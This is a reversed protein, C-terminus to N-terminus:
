ESESHGGSQVAFRLLQEIHSIKNHQLQLHELEHNYRFTNHTIVEITNGILSLYKLKPFVRLDEQTVRSLKSRRIDILKLQAFINELNVPFMYMQKAGAIYIEDVDKDTKGDKYNCYEDASEVKTVKM